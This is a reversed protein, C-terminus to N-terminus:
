QACHVSLCLSHPDPQFPLNILKIYILFYCYIYYALMYLTYIITFKSAPFFRATHTIQHSAACVRRKKGKLSLPPADSILDPPNKLMDLALRVAMDCAHSQYGHAHIGEARMFLIEWADELQRLNKFIDIEEKSGDNTGNSFPVKPDYFYVRYDQPDAPASAVHPQAEVQAEVVRQEESPGSSWDSEVEREPSSEATRPGQGDQVEGTLTNDAGGVAFGSYKPGFVHGTEPSGEGESQSPAEEVGEDSAVEESSLSSRAATDALPGRGGGDAQSRPRHEHGSRPRVAVGPYECRLVAQSSNVQSCGARGAPSDAEAPHKFVTFPCLYKPNHGYTVGPIQYDDWCLFCAEIAPKFGSFIEIDTLKGPKHSTKSGAANNGQNSQVKEIVTRHYQILRQKLTEREDPGICPNLAALKWLTVLEDCMSACANQSAQSNSNVNHKGQGTQQFAVKTNFWWVMIQATELCQLTVIELLPISNRDNRKYMERVISLLNWM